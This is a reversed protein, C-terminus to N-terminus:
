RPRDPVFAGHGRLLDQLVQVDLGQVTGNRNGALMAAAQGAAEGMIMYQPEMRLSSHAVHSASAAVPVLLNVIEGAKPTLSRYPIDWRVRVHPSLSGEARLRNSADIWRSVIHADRRYSAVGIVDSKSRWRDIDRQRLMYAGEMRRGERLYLLWPWNDNDTFEDACLGYQAMQNRITAPVRPDNALFWIFGQDYARHSADIADRQAYTADPYAYNLGPVATSMSGFDNVDFKQNVLPSITLFWSVSPTAAPNAALRGAIVRLLVEFDAADYGTPVPFPAQNASDSSFCIRYNSAQIRADATGLAGPARLPFGPDFGSPLTAIVSSPRVGAESEDFASISERGIRYSVGARAMLDGEYGADIFVSGEIRTGSELRVSVIRRQFTRVGGAEALRDGRVVSIRPHALMAEFVDEAVSPQFHYRGEPSGEAAQMRNFFERTYGGITSRDGTDTWGLGSSMMGGVHATPDIVIVRRGARAATVAALVGAPTAGYVVVTAGRLTGPTLTGDAVVRSPVLAVAATLALALATWRRPM